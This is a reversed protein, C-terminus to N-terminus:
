GYAGGGGVPAQAAAAPAGELEVEIGGVWGAMLNYIAAGILGSLFGMFGYFLPLFIIAGVGFILGFVAEEGGGGQHQSMMGATAGLIAFLSFVAGFILGLAAYTAGMIKGVSLPGFRRITTQM